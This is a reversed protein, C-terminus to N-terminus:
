RAAALKYDTSRELARDASREWRKLFGAHTDEERWVMLAAEFGFDKYFHREGTDIAGFREYTEIMKKAPDPDVEFATSFKRRRTHAHQMAAVVMAGVLYSMNQSSRFEPLIALRSFETIEYEAHPLHRQIHVDGFTERVPMGAISVDPIIRGTGIPTGHYKLLLTRANQDYVDPVQEGNFIFLPSKPDESVYGMDKYVQGRIRWSDHLDQWTSAPVVAYDDTVVLAPGGLSPRHHRVGKIRSEYYWQERTQPEIVDELSDPVVRLQSM